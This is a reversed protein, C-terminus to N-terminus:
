GLRFRSCAGTSKVAAREGVFEGGLLRQPTDRDDPDTAAFFRSGSAARGIIFGRQPQGSALAVTHSEIVATGDYTAQEPPWSQDDVLAQLEGDTVTVGPKEPPCASYVGVAHKSLFGGNAGVLGYGGPTQRLRTVVNVIAHMSYNSGPGGFYPLGGTVTLGRPDDTAIGLATCAEFIAIPFCSYLDMVALDRANIGARELAAGYASRMAVSQDLRPRELAPRDQLSCHSRPYIWRAEDIGLERAREVSMMVVAASQNVGDKAMMAKTYPEFLLPNDPSVEVIEAAAYARPFFACHHQAATRSFPALMRGIEACYAKRDLGLRHRRANELLAYVPGAATLDNGLQGPTVIGDLGAGRDECQGGADDHWDLRTKTRMARRITALAETGVLLVISAGGQSILHAFEGVLHQPSQGGAIDYVARRPNCGIRSAIARPMNAVLGVGNEYMAATDALTRVAVLHDMAAAIARAPGADQLARQAAVAALTTVSSATALDQPVTERVEGVGVIVPVSSEKRAM